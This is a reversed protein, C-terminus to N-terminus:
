NLEYIYKFTTYHVTRTNTSYLGQYNMESITVYEGDISVGEVYAVHGLGGATTTAVAGKKPTLGVNWGQAQANSYWRNANGLSNPLDPRKSKAYWTCNGPTYLNGRSDGAYLAVNVFMNRLSEVRRREAEVRAKKDAIKQQIGDLESKLSDIEEALTQKKSEIDQIEQTTKQLESSKQVVLRAQKELVPENELLPSVIQPTISQADATEEFLFVSAFLVVLISFFLILFRRIKM